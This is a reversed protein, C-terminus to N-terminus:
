FESSRRYLPFDDQPIFNSLSSSSPHSRSFAFNPELVHFNLSSVDSVRILLYSGSLGVSALFIVRVFPPRPFPEFFREELDLCVRAPSEPLSDTEEEEKVCMFTSEMDVGM